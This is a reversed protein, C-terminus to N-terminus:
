VLIYQKGIPPNVNLQPISEGYCILVDNISSPAVLKSIVEVKITDNNICENPIKTPSFVYLIQGIFGTSINTPNWTGQINNTSTLPLTEPNSGICYSSKLDFNPNTIPKVEVNLQYDESCENLPKNAIFSYMLKSPTSTNILSPSWSGLIANDSAINLISPVENECYTSDINFTPKEVAKVKYNLELGETCFHLNKNVSFIVKNDGVATTNIVLPTWNGEINNSSFNPLIDPLEFQCYLTDIQFKATDKKLVTIQIDLSDSCFHLAKNPYFTYKSTNPLNTEIKNKAWQGAINNKSIPPLTSLIEGVCYPGYNDFIPTSLNSPYIYIWAEHCTKQSGKSCIEYRISDTKLISLNTYTLIGTKKDFVTTGNKANVLIKFSVTDLIGMHVSDNEVVNIDISGLNKICIKDDIAFTVTYPPLSKYCSTGDNPDKTLKKIFYAKGEEVDIKYLNFSVNNVAYLYGDSSIFASGWVPTEAIIFGTLAKINTGVGPKFGFLMNNDIGYLTNDAKRHAWDKANYPGSDDLTFTLNVVNIKAVSTNTANGERIYFFGKDDFSGVVPDITIGMAALTTLQVWTGDAHLRVLGREGGPLRSIAYIFNDIPNFGLANYNWPYTFNNANPDNISLYGVGATGDSHYFNECPWPIPALLSQSYGHHLFLCFLLFVFIRIRSNRIIKNVFSM